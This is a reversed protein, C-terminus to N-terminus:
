VHLAHASAGLRKSSSSFVYTRLFRTLFFLSMTNKGLFYVTVTFPIDTDGEQHQQAKLLHHENLTGYVLPFDVTYRQKATKFESMTSKGSLPIGYLYRYIDTDGEQNVRVLRNENLTGYVPPFDM